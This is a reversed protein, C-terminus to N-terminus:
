AALEPAPDDDNALSGAQDLPITAGQILLKDGGELPPRDEIARVENPTMFGGHIATRFADFRSKLDGRELGGLNFKVFNSRNARGFLKALFEEELQEVIPQITSKVFQLALQETNSFTGHELSQILTPPLRFVRAIQITLDRKLDLLQMAAPDFGIPALDMGDPLPLVNGGNLVAQAISQSARALAEPSMGPAGKLKLPAVGNRFARSAYRDASIALGFTNAHLAIPDRHSGPASGPLWILDIVESAEWIRRGGREHYRRRHGSIRIDITDLDLPWLNTVRGAKNREVWALARGCTLYQVILWRRFESSTLFDDNVQDNLISQLPDSDSVREREGNQGKRYLAIPLAAITSAIVDVSAWVAPIGLASDVSVSEGSFSQNSGFLSAWAAADTLSVTPNELSRSELASSGPRLLNSLFSM